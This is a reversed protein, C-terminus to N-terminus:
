FIDKLCFFFAKNEKYTCEVEWPTQVVWRHPYNLCLATYSYCLGSVYVNNLMIESVVPGVTSRIMDHYVFFVCWLWYFMESFVGPVHAFVCGWHLDWRWRNSPLWVYQEVSQTERAKSCTHTNSCINYDVILTLSGRYIPTVSVFNCWDATKEFVSTALSKRHIM